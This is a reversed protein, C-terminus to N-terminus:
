WRCVQDIFPYHGANPTFVIDHDSPVSPDRSKALTDVVRKAAKPDMWDHDGYIFTIPVQM